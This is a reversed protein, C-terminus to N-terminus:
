RNMRLVRAVLDELTQPKLDCERRVTAVIGLIFGECGPKATAVHASWNAVGDHPIRYPTPAQCRACHGGAWTSESILRQMKERIEELFCHRKM